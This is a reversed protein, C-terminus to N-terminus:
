MCITINCVSQVKVSNSKATTFLEELNVIEQDM